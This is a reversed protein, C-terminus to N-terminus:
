SSHRQSRNTGAKVPGAIGLEGPAYKRMGQSSCIMQIAARDSPKDLGLQDGIESVTMRLRRLERVQLYLQHDIAPALAEAQQSM